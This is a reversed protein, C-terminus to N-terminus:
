VESAEQITGYFDLTMSGQINDYIRTLNLQQVEIKSKYDKIYNFFEKTQDYTANISNIKVQYRINNKESKLEIVKYSGLDFLRGTNNVIDAIMNNVDKNSLNLPLYNEMNKYEEEKQAYQTQLEEYTYPVNKVNNYMRESTQVDWELNEKEINLSNMKFYILSFAVIYIAVVIIEKKKELAKELIKKFDFNLNNAGKSSLM